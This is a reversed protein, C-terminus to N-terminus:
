QRSEHANQGSGRANQPADHAAHAPAHPAYPAHPQPLRREHPQLAHLLQARPLLSPVHLPRRSRQQPRAIQLIQATQRTQPPSRDHEPADAPAPPQRGRPLSRAAPAAHPPPRKRRSQQLARLPPQLARKRLPQQQLSGRQATRASQPREAPRNGASQGHQSQAPPPNRSCQLM